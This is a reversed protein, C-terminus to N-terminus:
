LNEIQKHIWTDQYNQEEWFANNNLNSVVDEIMNKYADEPCWGLDFKSIMQNNHYFKICSSDESMSRWNCELNWRTGYEIICEDDVDHIGKPDISGYETSDIDELKWNQVAVIQSPYTSAWKPNLAIFISLMHPMLDRSVGGFSLQKNTFWSGPHPICNKRIWEIQIKDSQKALEKLEDINERWMNNKIMMFRTDPFDQILQMWARANEVGPKEILVIKSKKAINRAITEHTFNPTCIVAIDYGDPVDEINSYDAGKTVDIDVTTVDYSLTTFVSHYLQGIGLGVVLSKM